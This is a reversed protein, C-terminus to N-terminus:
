GVAHLEALVAEVAKPIAESVAPTPETSFCTVNEVGIGFIVLETPLELELRRGVDLATVVSMDHVCTSHSTASLERLQAETLRTVEGPLGGELALADVLIVREYGVMAEMLRLGGVSLECVDVTSNDPLRERVERAVSVGVGDDSLIPNGLGVVLTRWASPKM